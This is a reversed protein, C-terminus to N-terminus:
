YRVEFNTYKNEFERVDISFSTVHAFRPGIKVEEIFPKIIEEEGEVEIEVEGTYLNKVYGNLNYHRALSQVFYRFGVGQVVGGVIITVTKKM